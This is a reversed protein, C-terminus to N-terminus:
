IRQIMRPLLRLWLKQERPPLMALVAVRDRTSLQSFFDEAGARPLAGFGEQREELSLVSWPDYLEAATLNNESM